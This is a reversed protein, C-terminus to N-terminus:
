LPARIFIMALLVGLIIWILNLLLGLPVPIGLLRKFGIVMILVAWLDILLHSVGLLYSDGLGLLIYVWDWVVLATGVILDTMGSLNLILDIDTPKGLLRLIVHLAAALFLWQALLFVPALFVEALYYKQTPLFTLWSPMSPQRGMLALPLYLCLADLLGRITQGALGWHPAPKDRLYDVFRSPHSYGLAWAHLFQKMM